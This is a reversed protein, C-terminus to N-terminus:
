PAACDTRRLVVRRNQARGQATTNDGVPNAEGYGAVTIRSADVGKTALYDVAAQARRKSLDLNYADDGTSDTYGGAEGGVFRLEQLRAAVRDLETRDAATLTASDFEFVLQVSVDCSCGQPGVREGAPTDPCQDATDAVGDRDADSPARPPPPPPPAPAPPPPPPPTAAVVPEARTKFKYGISAGYYWGSIDFQGPYQATSSGTPPPFIPQSPAAPLTGGTYKANASADVYKGFLNFFMGGDPNGIDLGLGYAVGFEDDIALLPTTNSILTYHVGVGVYPRFMSQPIFHWQLSLTPSAYDYNTIVVEGANGTSGRITVDSDFNTNIWFELGLHETFHWTVDGYLVPGDDGKSFGAGTGVSAPPTIGAPFDHSVDDPAAWATGLRIDWEGAALPMAGLALAALVAMRGYTRTLM